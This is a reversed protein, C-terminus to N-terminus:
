TAMEVTELTILSLGRIEAAVARAAARPDAAQYIARGVIVYDAGAEAAEPEEQPPFLSLEFDDEKQM